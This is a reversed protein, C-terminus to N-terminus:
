FLIRVAAAVDDTGPIGPLDVLHRQSGTVCKDLEVHRIAFEAALEVLAACIEEETDREVNGGVGQKGQHDCLHATQLRLFKDMGETVEVEIHIMQILGAFLERAFRTWERPHEEIRRHGLQFIEAELVERELTVVRMGRDLSGDGNLLHFTEGSLRQSASNKSM